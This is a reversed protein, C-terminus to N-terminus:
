STDLSYFLYIFLYAQYLVQVIGIKYTLCIVNCVAIEMTDKIADMNVSVTLMTANGM